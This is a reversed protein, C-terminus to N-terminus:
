EESEAVRLSFSARICRGQGATLGCLSSHLQKRGFASRPADANMQPQFVIFFQIGAKAPIVSDNRTNTGASVWGHTGPTHWTGALLPLPPALGVRCSKTDEKTCKRDVESPAPTAKTTEPRKIWSDTHAVSNGM